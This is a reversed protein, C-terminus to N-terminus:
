ATRANPCEQIEDIFILTNGPILETTKFVFSMRKFIEEVALSGDFIAKQEPNEIFNIYIYKEYYENGFKNIIFTKGIQRAGKILLCENKKSNKWDILTQLIKRELM